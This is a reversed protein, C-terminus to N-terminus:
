MKLRFVLMKVFNLGFFWFKSLIRGLGSIIVWFGLINIKFALIYVSNSWFGFNLFLLRFVWFISRLLWFISRLLWFISLFRGFVFFKVFFCGSFEFNQCINFKVALINVFIRGKGSIIVKFGCNSM